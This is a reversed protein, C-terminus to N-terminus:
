DGDPDHHPASVNARIIVTPESVDGTLVQVSTVLNGKGFRVELNSTAAEIQSPGNWPVLNKRCHDDHHGGFFGGRFGPHGFVSWYLWVVLIAIFGRRALTRKQTNEHAGSVCRKCFLGRTCNSRPQGNSYNNHSLLPAEEIPLVFDGPKKEKM